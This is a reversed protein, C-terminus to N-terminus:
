KKNMSKRKEAQTRFRFYKIHCVNQKCGEFFKKKNNFITRM